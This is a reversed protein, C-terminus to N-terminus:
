GPALWRADRATGTIEVLVRRREGDREIERLWVVQTSVAFVRAGSLQAPDDARRVRRERPEDEGGRNKAPQEPDRGADHDAISGASIV